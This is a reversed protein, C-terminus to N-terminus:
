HIPVICIEELKYAIKRVKHCGLLSVRVRGPSSKFRGTTACCLRVGKFGLIERKKKGWRLSTPIRGNDPLM